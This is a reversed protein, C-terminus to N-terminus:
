RNKDSEEAKKARDMYAGYSLNKGEIERRGVDFSHKYRESRNDSPTPNDPNRGDKYGEVFDDHVDITM